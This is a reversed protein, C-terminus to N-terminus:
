DLNYKKMKRYLTALSIGLAKAAEVKGKTSSGHLLLSKEIFSKEASDMSLTDDIQDAAYHTCILSKKFWEPLTEYTIEDKKAFACCYEIMNKLERVNGPWSYKQMILSVEDSVMVKKDSKKNHQHIFYDTLIQIDGDRERLPPIDLQMVNLRYYLDKRFKGDQVMQRLDCNTAAIIRINVFTTKTDGLRDFSNNEIVRLLKSQLHLPLEGIEDLFISSMHSVELKGKKGGQKAGTFAGAEYGFLESELLNGPIASCDLTILQKKGRASQKHISHAFLEKGTGTEGIILAPSDHKSIIFTREKVAKLAESKGVIFDMESGDFIFEPHIHLIFGVDGVAHIKINYKENYRFDSNRLLQIQPLIDSVNKGRMDCSLLNLIKRAPTNIDKIFGKDSVAILGDHNLNLLCNVTNENQYALKDSTMTQMVFSSLKELFAVYLDLDSNLNLKHKHMLYISGLTEDEM